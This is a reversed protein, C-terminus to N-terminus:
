NTSNGITTVLSTIRMKHSIPIKRRTDPKNNAPKFIVHGTIKSCEKKVM